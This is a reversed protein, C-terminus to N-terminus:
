QSPKGAPSGQWSTVYSGDPRKLRVIGSDADGTREVNWTEPRAGAAGAIDVAVTATNMRIVICGTESTEMGANNLCKDPGSVVARLGNDNIQWGPEIVVAPTDGANLQDCGTLLTGSACLLTLMLRKIRYVSGAAASHIGYRNKM